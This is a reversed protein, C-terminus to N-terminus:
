KLILSPIGHFGFTNKKFEGAKPNPEYSFLKAIEDPAFKVGYDNKLYDKLIRCIIHDEPHIEGSYVTNLIEDISILLRKSRLSFGGNGVNYNDDYWWPAGIYDFNLFYDKWLEPHIVYGDYQIILVFDTQVYDILYKMIFSSYQEKSTIKDIIITEFKDSLLLKDTLFKVAGFEIYEISKYIAKMASAHNVCDICVLTINSLKIM